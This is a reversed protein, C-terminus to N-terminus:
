FVTYLPLSQSINHTKYVSKDFSTKNISHNNRQINKEEFLLKQNNKHKQKCEVILQKECESFFFASCLCVYYNRMIIKVKNSWGVYSLTWSFIDGSFHVNFLVFYLFVVIFVTRCCTVITLGYKDLVDLCSRIWFSVSSQVSNIGCFAIRFGYKEDDTNSICINDREVTHVYIYNLM